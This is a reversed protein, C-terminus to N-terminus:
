HAEEQVTDPMNLMCAHLGAEEDFQVQKLDNTLVSPLLRLSVPLVLIM